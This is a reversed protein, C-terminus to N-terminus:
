VTSQQTSITIDEEELRPYDRLLIKPAKTQEDSLQVGKSGEVQAMSVLRYCCLVTLKITQKYKSQTKVRRIGFHHDAPMKDTEYPVVLVM